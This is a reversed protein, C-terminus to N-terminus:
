AYHRTRLSSTGYQVVPLDQIRSGRHAGHVSRAGIARTRRPMILALVYALPALRLRPCPMGIGQGTPSRAYTLAPPLMRRGALPLPSRLRMIAVYPVHGWSSTPLTLGPIGVAVVGVLPM